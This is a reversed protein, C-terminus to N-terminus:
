KQNLSVLSALQNQLATSTQTMQALLTDLNSFQTIYRQQTAELKEVLREAEKEMSKINDQVGSSARGLAGKDADLMADIRAALQDGFGQIGATTVNGDEDKVEEVGCFFKVLDIKKNNLASTLAGADLSMKADKDLNAKGDKMPVRFLGLQSLSTVGSDGVSYNGFLANELENRVTRLFSDGTLLSAKEGDAADPDYATLNDITELVNYYAEIVKDLEANLGSDSRTVNLRHTEYGSSPKATAAEIRDGSATGTGTGPDAPATYTSVKNLMLEVGPIADTIKNTDSKVEIGDIEAIAGQAIQLTDFKGGNMANWLNVDVEDAGEAPKELSTPTYSFDALRGTGIMRFAGGAGETESALVLQQTKSAGTGQELITAKVGAGSSNIADRLEELTSGKFAITTTKLNGTLNAKDDTLSGVTFTLMSEEDGEGIKPAADGKATVIRQTSALQKVAIQYDGITAGKNVKATFGAGEQTEASYVDVTKGRPNILGSLASRFDSLASKVQGYASLKATEKAQKNQLLTLPRAELEMLQNVMNAMDIGSGIGLSAGLGTISM